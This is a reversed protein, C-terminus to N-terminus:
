SITISASIWYPCSSRLITNPSLEAWAWPYVHLLQFNSREVSILGHHRKELYHPVLQLNLKIQELHLVPTIRQKVYHLVNEICDSIKTQRQNCVKWLIEWLLMEKDSIIVLLSWNRSSLGSHQVVFIQCKKCYIRMTNASHKESSVVLDSKIEFTVYKSVPEWQCHTDYAASSKWFLYVWNQTGLIDLYSYLPKVTLM